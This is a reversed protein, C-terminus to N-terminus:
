QFGGIQNSQYGAHILTFASKDKIDEVNIIHKKHVLWQVRLTM